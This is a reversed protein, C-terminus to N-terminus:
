TGPQTYTISDKLSKLNSISYPLKEEEFSVALRVGNM